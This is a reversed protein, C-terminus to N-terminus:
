ANLQCGLNPLIEVPNEIVEVLILDLIRRRPYVLDDRGDAHEFRIGQNTARGLGALPLQHDPLARM